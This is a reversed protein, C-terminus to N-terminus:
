EVFEVQEIMPRDDGKIMVFLLTMLMFVVISVWLRLLIKTHNQFFLSAMFFAFGGFLVVCVFMLVSQTGFESKVLGKVITSQTPKKPNVWIKVVKGTSLREAIREAKKRSPGDDYGYAIKDGEYKTEQWQYVYTVDANYTTPSEDNYNTDVESDIIKATTPTWNYSKNGKLAPMVLANFGMIVFIGPFGVMLLFLAVFCGIEVKDTTENVTEENM